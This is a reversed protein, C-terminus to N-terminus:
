RGCVHNIHEEAIYGITLVMLVMLTFLFLAIAGDADIAGALAVVALFSCMFLRIALTKM